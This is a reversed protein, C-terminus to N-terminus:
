FKWTDQLPCSATHSEWTTPAKHSTRSTSWIANKQLSGRWGQIVICLLFASVNLVYFCQQNGICATATRNIEISDGLTYTQTANSGVAIYNKGDWQFCRSFSFFIFAEVKTCYTQFPLFHLFLEAWFHSFLKTTNISNRLYLLLLLSQPYESILLMRQPWFIPCIWTQHLLLLVSITNSNPSLSGIGLM